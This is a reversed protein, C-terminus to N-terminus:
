DVYVAVLWVIEGEAENRSFKLQLVDLNDLGSVHSSLSSLLLMFEKWVDHVLPCDCFLHRLDGILASGGFDLCYKCYPDPMLYVRFLRERTPLKNHILLFLTERLESDILPLNLRRWVQGYTRPDLSELEIRAPPFLM